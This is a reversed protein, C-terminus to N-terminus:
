RKPVQILTRKQPLKYNDLDRIKGFLYLNSIVKPVFSRASVLLFGLCIAFTAFL